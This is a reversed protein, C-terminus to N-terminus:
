KLDPEQDGGTAAAFETRIEQEVEKRKEIVATCLDCVVCSAYEDGMYVHVNRVGEVKGGLKGGM